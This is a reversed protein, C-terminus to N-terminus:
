TRVIAAVSELSSQIAGQLWGQDLSCHEGAFFLRGEQKRANEYHLELDGPKMFCFAGGAWDFEDWFMSANDTVAGPELIEPHIEGVCGTVVAARKSRAVTGLRRADAGWCYSGVLVGPRLDSDPQNLERLVDTQAFVSEIESGEGEEDPHGDSPYYIQRNVLDLQSGGGIVGDAEWFREACSLLVKTSSAYSLNRIASRKGESIGSLEIRRLVPFPITCLVYDEDSRVWDGSKEYVVQVGDRRALISTVPADFVVEVRQEILGLLTRPLEDTGGVIEELIAGHESIGDRIFMTLAKDWWVELGTITGALTVADETDWERRLFEGLTLSELERVRQTMPGRRFIAATDEPSSRVEDTVTQLPTMLAILPKDGEALFDKERQSLDYEALLKTKSDAHTTAVGRFFYMREERQHHNIFPRMELGCVDKAYHRTFSHTTPIRMAGLEHYEGNAFRHTMARGGVRGSAELVRVTHGLESLEYAAVLGSIGAGLITIRKRERGADAQAIKSLVSSVTTTTM